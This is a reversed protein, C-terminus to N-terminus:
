PQRQSHQPRDHRDPCRAGGQTRRDRRSAARPHIQKLWLLRHRRPDGDGGRRLGDRRLAFARDRVLGAGGCGGIMGFRAIIMVKRCNEARDALDIIEAELKAIREGAQDMAHSAPEIGERMLAPYATGDPAGLPARDRFRPRRRPRPCRRADARRDPSGGPARSELARWPVSAAPQLSLNFPIPIPHGTSGIM